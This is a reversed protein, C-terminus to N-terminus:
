KMLILKRTQVFSGAQIKYYYIGSALHGANWTYKYSGTTLKESILTEVQQGLVNYIKLTIDNVYKEIFFLWRTLIIM